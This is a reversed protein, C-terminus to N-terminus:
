ARASRVPTRSAGAASDCREAPVAAISLTRRIFREDSLVIQAALQKKENVIIPARFNPRLPMGETPFAVVIWCTAEDDSTAAVRRLDDPPMAYEVALEDARLVPFTLQPEELSQLCFFPRAGPVPLLVYKRFLAFGLLPVVFCLVKDRPVEVVGLQRTRYRM